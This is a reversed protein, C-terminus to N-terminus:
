KQQKAICFLHRVGRLYIRDGAIAPTAYAQEGIEPAGLLQFRRDLKFIHLKGSLDILYVRDKVLVPSSYFGEDFEQEWVVKGTKAALCTVVGFATPVILYEGEALPSAADPLADAWQWLIKPESGHDRIDIATASANEAAVFVVGDSYAASPAVEGGLCGVHWLLKGTKPDYGDVAKSNALILETQGQNDVLIPSAWSVVGRKVRWALEGSALAFAYLASDKGEQDYQVFLTDSHLILSSAHGYGNEPVGLHKAWVREGNTNLCVLEGTGFIAAVHQGDTAATPAAYGTEELVRPLPADPAGPLNSVDHRWLLKGTDAHYCYVQRTSADAGTLFLRDGWVVPSSMGHKPLAAKWLVNIGQKIDWDIPPNASAAHANGGPGRFGPWPRIVPKAGRSNRDPPAPAPQGAAPRTSAYFLLTLALLGIVGGVVRRGNRFKSTAQM